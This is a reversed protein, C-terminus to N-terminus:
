LNIRPEKLMQKLHTREGGGSVWRANKEVNRKVDVMHVKELTCINGLYNETLTIWEQLFSFEHRHM